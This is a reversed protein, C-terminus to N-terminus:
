KKKGFYLKRGARSALQQVRNHTVGLEDALSQYTRGEWLGRIIVQEREKLIGIRENILQYKEPNYVTIVEILNQKRIRKLDNTLTCPINDYNYAILIDCQELAWRWVKRHHASFRNDYAECKGEIWPALIERKELGIPFGDPDENFMTQLFEANSDCNQQARKVPDVVKVIEIRKAPYARQLECIIQLSLSEVATHCGLYWFELHDEAEVLRVLEECLRQKVIMDMEFYIADFCIRKM